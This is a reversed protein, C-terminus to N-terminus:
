RRRRVRQEYLVLHRGWSAPDFGSERAWRLIRPDRPAFVEVRARRLWAAAARAARLGTRGEGLVAAYAARSGPEVWALLASGDGVLVEGRGALADLLRRTIPVMHWRYGVYGAGAAGFPSSRWLHFAGRGDQARALPPAGRWLPPAALRTFHAVERFGMREYLSRSPNRWGTYLRLAPRRERAARAYADALLMTAYGRRRFDPHTRLQGIWLAGDVCTAVGGMTVLRGSAEVVVAEGRRVMEPLFDAVYDDPGAAARCLRRLEPVDGSRALRVRAM